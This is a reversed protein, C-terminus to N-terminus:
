EREAAARREAIFEDVVNAGEPVYRRAIERAKEVAQKLTVLKLGDGEASLVLTDGPGAGLWDRWAAPLLVRGADDIKLRVPEPTRGSAAAKKEDAVLVNRVHQYRLGLFKAIDSRSLGAKNLKRIKASKTPLAEVLRALEDRSHINM